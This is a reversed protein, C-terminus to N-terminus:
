RASTPPEWRYGEKMYEHRHVKNWRRRLADNLCECNYYTDTEFREDECEAVITQNQTDMTVRTDCYQFVLRGGILRDEDDMIYEIRDATVIFDNEDMLEFEESGCDPCREQYPSIDDINFRGGCDPCHFIKGNVLDYYQCFIELGMEKAKDRPHIINSMDEGGEM